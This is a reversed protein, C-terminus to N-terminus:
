AGCAPEAPRKDNIRPTKPMTMGCLPTPNSTPTFAIPTMMTASSTSTIIEKGSLRALRTAFLILANQQLRRLDRWCHGWLNRGQGTQIYPRGGGAPISRLGTAGVDHIMVIAHMHNPMVVYMGLEVERRIEASKEWEEAVIRGYENLQM